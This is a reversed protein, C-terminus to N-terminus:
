RQKTAVDNDKAAVGQQLSLHQLLLMPRRHKKKGRGCNHETAVAVASPEVGVAIAEWLANADAAGEKEALSGHDGVGVATLGEGHNVVYRDGEKLNMPMQELDADKVLAQNQPPM